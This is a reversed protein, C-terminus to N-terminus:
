VKIVKKYLYGSLAVDLVEDLFNFILKKASTAMCFPVVCVSDQSYVNRSFYVFHM